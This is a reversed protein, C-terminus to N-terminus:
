ILSDVNNSQGAELLSIIESRVKEFAQKTSDGWKNITRFKDLPDSKTRGFYVGFKNAATSGGKIKGLDMLSTELWYCFSNKRGGGVVYEDLTIESLKKIPFLKIFKQRKNELKHFDKDLDPKIKELYEAQKERLSTLNMIQGKFKKVEKV